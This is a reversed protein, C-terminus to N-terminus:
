RRLLVEASVTRNGAVIRLLYVGDAGVINNITVLGAPDPHLHCIRSICKGCLSYISLDVNGIPSRSLLIRTGTPTSWIKSISMVIDPKGRSCIAGSTVIDLSDVPSFLQSNRSCSVRWYWEGGGLDASPIYFSDTLPIIFPSAFVINSALEFTYSKANNVNNWRFAPRSTSVIAGDYRILLPISDSVIQFADVQSWSDILNSKVRWYISGASLETSSTFQTDSTPVVLAPNMFISNYAVQLTYSSAAPVSYWKLSPRTNETVKPVYPILVPVRPDQVVFSGIESYIVLSDNIGAVVQWYITDIPLDVPVKYSTDAVPTRIYPNSFSKITDILVSYGAAQPVSHWTLIPM